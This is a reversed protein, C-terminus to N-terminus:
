IDEAEIRLLAQGFEVPEANGALVEVAVGAWDTTVHNMLKMAEVIGVTQGAEIRDGVRVFPAAGPEPAAYFTGVLPAVVVKVRGDAGPGESGRGESGRGESGRGESGAPAPEAAVATVAPAGAPANEATSARDAWTVELACEGVRLSVNAVPGPITKVLSSVEERLLRLTDHWTAEGAGPADTM